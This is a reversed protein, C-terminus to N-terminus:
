SSDSLKLKKLWDSSYQRCILGCKGFAHLKVYKNDVVWKNERLSKCVRRNVENFSPIYDGELMDELVLYDGAMSSRTVHKIIGEINTHCDEIIIWPHPLKILTSLPLATEIENVNGKIYVIGPEDAGHENIDVTIIKTDLSFMKCYGQLLLASTGYATGFEIIVKPKIDSIMNMYIIMDTQHKEIVQPGIFALYGTAYMKEGGAYRNYYNIIKEYDVMEYRGNILTEVVKIFNRHSLQKIEEDTQFASSLEGQDDERLDGTYFTLCWVGAEFVGYDLLLIEMSKKVQEFVTPDSLSDKIASYSTGANLLSKLCAIAESSM